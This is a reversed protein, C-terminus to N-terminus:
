IDANIAGNCPRCADLFCPGRSSTQPRKRTRDPLDHMSAVMLELRQAVGEAKQTLGVLSGSSSNAANRAAEVSKGLEDVQASLSAVAQGIGSEADKFASLRRSLVFCYFGAALAGAVMLVDAILAM